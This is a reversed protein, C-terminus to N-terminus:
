SSERRSSFVSVSPEPSAAAARTPVSKSPSSLTPFFPSVAHLLWETSVTCRNVAASGLDSSSRNFVLTYKTCRHTPQYM